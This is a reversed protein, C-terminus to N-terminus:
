SFNKEIMRMPLFLRNSGLSVFGFKKYFGVVHDGIADVVVGFSMVTKTGELSRRLADVLLFAGLKKSQYRKAIALRGLLTAGIRRYRGTRKRLEDPLEAEIQQTSLIWHGSRTGRKHGSHLCGFAKGELGQISTGM